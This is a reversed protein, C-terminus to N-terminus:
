NVYGLSELAKRTAPDIADREAGTRPSTLRARWARLEADLRSAVEPQERLISREESPDAAIDFLEHDGTSSWVYKYGEEQLSASERGARHYDCRLRRGVAKWVHEAIPFYEALLPRGAAGGGAGLDIADAAPRVLAGTAATVTPLIDVLSAPAAVRTGAPFLRPYRVVLPIELVSNYLLGGHGMQGREGLSEGHDSTVILLTQDRLGARDLAEVVRGVQHDVYLVGADYLATSARLRDPTVRWGAGACQLGPPAEGGVLCSACLFLPTDRVWQRGITPALPTELYTSFFPEPVSGYPEHAEMYNAFAFFPRGTPAVEDIWRVLGDTVEEGGLDPPPLGRRERWGEQVLNLFFVGTVTQVGLYDFREFGRDFGGLSTVWPNASFAATRYGRAALIQALTPLSPPLRSQGADTAHTSVYLGTFLSAHAPLTWSATSYAREFLAGEAALRDIHPSTPRSYGYASLHDRRLTDVVILVVHPGAAGRPRVPLRARAGTSRLGVALVVAVGAAALAPRRWSPPLRRLAARLLRGLLIGLLILGQAGFAAVVYFRRPLVSDPNWFLSIAIFTLGLLQFNIGPGRWRAPLVREVVSVAPSTVLGLVAGLLAYRVLLSVLEGEIIRLIGAGAGLWEFIVAAGLAEVACYAAGYVAGTVLGRGLPGWATAKPAEPSSM